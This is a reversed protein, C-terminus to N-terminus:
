KKVAERARRLNGQRWKSHMTVVKWRDEDETPVLVFRCGFHYLHMQQNNRLEHRGHVLAAEVLAVIQARIEEATGSAKFRQRYREIAHETIKM